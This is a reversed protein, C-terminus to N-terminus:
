IDGQTEKRAWWDVDASGIGYYDRLENEEIQFGGPRPVVKM